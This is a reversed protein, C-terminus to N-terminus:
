PNTQENAVEVDARIKWISQYCDDIRDCLSPQGEGVCGECSGPSPEDVQVLDLSLTLSEHRKPDHIPKSM